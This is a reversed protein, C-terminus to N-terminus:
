PWHEAADSSFWSREPQESVHRLGPIPAIIRQRENSRSLQMGSILPAGLPVELLEAHEANAAAADITLEVEAVEIGNEKLLNAIPTKEAASYHIRRGLREPVYSIHVHVPSRDVLAVRIVKLVVPGYGDPGSNLHDPTPIFTYEVLRSDYSSSEQAVHDTLPAAEARHQWRMSPRIVFTGKGPQRSVFGEEELRLLARRVTIRSVTFKECLQHEGPLRMGNTYVEDVIQGRLAAYVRHHLPPLPENESVAGLDVREYDIDM